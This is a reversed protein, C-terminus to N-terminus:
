GLAGLSFEVEGCLVRVIREMHAATLPKAIVPVGLDMEQPRLDTTHGSLIAARLSPGFKSRLVALTREVTTGGLNYDLLFLDPVEPMGTVSALFHLEDTSAFVSAGLAEFAMRTARLVDDDDDLLAVMRGTLDRGGAAVRAAPPPRREAYTPLEVTFRTGRGVTSRVTVTGGAATAFRRVIWLGLGQGRTGDAVAGRGRYWEEFIFPQEEPPIGRGDDVVDLLLTGYGRLRAGVLIRRAHAHKLANAVLNDLIRQLYRRDAVCHVRSPFVRLDVKELLARRRFRRALEHFLNALTIGEERPGESSVGFRLGDLLDDTIAAIEEYASEAAFVLEQDESDRARLRLSQLSLGLVHLPGRIDHGLAAILQAREDGETGAGFVDAAARKALPKV